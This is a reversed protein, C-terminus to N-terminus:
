EGELYGKYKYLQKIHERLKQAIGRLHVGRMPGEPMGEVSLRNDRFHMESFNFFGTLFNERIASKWISISLLTVLM